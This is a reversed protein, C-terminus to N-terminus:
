CEDSINLQLPSFRKYDLNGSARLEQRHGVGEKPTEAAAAPGFNLLNVRDRDVLLGNVLSERKQESVFRPLSAIPM